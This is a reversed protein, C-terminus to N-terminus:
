KFGPNLDPLTRRAWGTADSLAICTRSRIDSVRSWFSGAPIHLDTGLIQSGGSMSRPGWSNIFLALPGGYARHIEPRDDFGALLMCHRWTTTRKAVGNSDRVRNFGQGGDSSIFYGRGLFDRWEEPSDLTTATRILNNDLTDVVEPPPPTAGWKGAIKASYRTLDAIGPYNKRLVIGCKSLMVKAASSSQWGDSKKQRFWYVAETSAVSNERAVQSVEPKREVKGTHSDKDGSLFDTALVGLAARTIGFSVCDGRGQAPGPWCDPYADLVYRYPLILKGKSEDALGYEHAVESGVPNGGTDKIHGLFSEHEKADHIYGEGGAQYAAIIDEPDTFIEGDWRM